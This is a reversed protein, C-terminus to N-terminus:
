GAFIYRQPYYSAMSFELLWPIVSKDEIYKFRNFKLSVKRILNPPKSNPMCLGRLLRLKESRESSTLPRSADRLIGSDRRWFTDDCIVSKSVVDRSRPLKSLMLTLHHTLHNKLSHTSQVKTKKWTHNSFLAQADDTDYKFAMLLTMKREEKGDVFFEEKYLMVVILWGM